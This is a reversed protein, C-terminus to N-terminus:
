TQFGSSNVKCKVKVTIPVTPYVKEWDLSNFQQPRSSKLAQGFGLYDTKLEHQSKHIASEIQEKITKTLLAEVKQVNREKSFDLEEGTEEMVMGNTKVKVLFSLKGHRFEPKIGTNQKTVQYTFSKKGDTVVVPSAREVIWNANQAEEANLWALLRWNKFVAAGERAFTKRGNKLVIRNGLATGKSSKLDLWFRYFFDTRVLSLRRELQSMDVVESALLKNFKPKVSFFAQAKNSQIFVLRLRLAVEPDKFLYNSLDNFDREKALEEGIVVLRLHSLSIGKSISTQIRQLAQRISKGEAGAILSEPMPKNAIPKAFELTVKYNAISPNEPQDIGISVAFATSNVDHIDWCGSTMLFLLLCILFLLKKRM